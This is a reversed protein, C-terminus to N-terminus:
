GAAGDEQLAAIGDEAIGRVQDDPDALLGHLEPLVSPDGSLSLYHAADGRIRADPHRTLRVLDPVLAAMADTGAIEEVLAGLGIRVSLETDPNELLQVLGHRHGPDRRLFAVADPLQSHTILEQLYDAQGRPSATREIWQALERESHLGTLEFAGIRIWPVARVGHRRAEEAAHEINYVQLQRLTGAKVLDALARLVTPCHPCQSAVFLLADPPTPSQPRNM